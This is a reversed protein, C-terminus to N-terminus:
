QSDTASRFPRKRKKKLVPSICGATETSETTIETNQDDEAGSVKSGLFTDIVKNM